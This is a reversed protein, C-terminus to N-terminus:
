LWNPLASMLVVFNDVSVTSPFREMLFGPFLYTSVLKSVQGWVGFSLGLATWLRARKHRLSFFGPSIHFNRPGPPSPPSYSLGSPARVISYLGLGQQCLSVLAPLPAPKLADWSLPCVLAWSAEGDPCSQLHPCTESASRVEVEKSIFPPTWLARTATSNPDLRPIQTFLSELGLLLHFVCALDAHGLAASKVAGQPGNLISM